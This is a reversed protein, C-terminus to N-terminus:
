PLPLPELDILVMRTVPQTSASRPLGFSFPSENWGYPAPGNLSVLMNTWPVSRGPPVTVDLLLKKSVQLYPLLEDRVGNGFLWRFGGSGTPWRVGMSYQGHTVGITARFVEWGAGGDDAFGHLDEPEFSYIIQAPASALLCASTMVALWRLTRRM